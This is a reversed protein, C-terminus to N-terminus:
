KLDPVFYVNNKYNINRIRDKFIVTDAQVAKKEPRHASIFSLFYTNPIM